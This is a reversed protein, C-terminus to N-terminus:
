GITKDTIEPKDLEKYFEMFAAQRAATLTINKKGLQITVKKAEALKKLEAFTMQKKSTLFERKRKDSVEDRFKQELDVALVEKDDALLILRRAEASDYLFKDSISEFDFNIKDTPVIKGNEFAAKLGIRLIECQGESRNEFVTESVLVSVTNSEDTVIFLKGQKEVKTNKSFFGESLHCGDQRAFVQETSFIFSVSLTFVLILLKKMVNESRLNNLIGSM